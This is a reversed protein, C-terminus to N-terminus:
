VVRIGFVRIYVMFTNEDWYFPAWMRWRYGELSLSYVLMSAARDKSLKNLRRFYRKSWNLTIQKKM